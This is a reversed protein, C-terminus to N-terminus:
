LARSEGYFIYVAGTNTSEPGDARACVDGVILDSYGDGDLDTAVPPTLAFCPDQAGGTVCFDGSAVDLDSEIPGYHLCIAPEYLHPKEASTTTTVLDEYGDGDVDGAGFAYLVHRSGEEGGHIVLDTDLGLVYDGSLPGFLVHVTPVDGDFTSITERVVLDNLGDGNVDSLHLLDWGIGRDRVTAGRIVAVAEDISHMGALPGELVMVEGHWVPYDAGPVTLVLDDQGDGTVDGGVFSLGVAACLPGPAITAVAREPGGSGSLQLPDFVFMGGGGEHLEPGYAGMCLEESGDGNLDGCRATYAERRGGLSICEYFPSPVEGPLDVEAHLVGTPVEPFTSLDAITLTPMPHSPNWPNSWSRTGALLPGTPHAISLWSASPLAGLGEVQGRLVPPRAGEYLALMLYNGGIQSVGLWRPAGEVQPGVLVRRASKVSAPLVLAEEAGPEATATGVLGCDGALGDCDEDVGSGCVEEASPHVASNLDDCDTGGCAVADVGDLDEDRPCPDASDDDDPPVTSPGGPTPASICGFSLALTVLPLVDTARRRRRPLSPLSRASCRLSFDERHGPAQRTPSGTRLQAGPAHQTASTALLKRLHVTM